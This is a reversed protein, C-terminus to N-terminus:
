GEERRGGADPMGEKIPATHLREVTLAPPPIGAPVAAVAVVWWDQIRVSPNNVQVFAVTPSEVFMQSATFYRDFGENQFGVSIFSGTGPLNFWAWQSQEGPCSLMETRVIHFQVDAM